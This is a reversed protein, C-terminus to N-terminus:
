ELGLNFRKRFEELTPNKEVMHQYKETSTYLKRKGDQEAQKTIIEITFNQLGVRLYNLLDIKELALLNEQIKNEIIVEIQYGTLLAPPNATMITFLNIKGAKKIAEAYENWKKLFEDASFDNQSEGQIYDPKDTEKKEEQAGIANLDPIISPASKLLSGSAKQLPPKEPEAPKQVPAEPAKVPVQVPHSAPSAPAPDVVPEPKKKLDAESPAAAALNLVSNIHCM